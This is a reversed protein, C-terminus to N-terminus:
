GAFRDPDTFDVDVPPKDGVTLAALVEGIGTAHKFGHGSCGGGVLLRPHRRPRGLVFQRDPTRTFLCVEARVPVTDLGPFAAPLREAAGAWDRRHVSRDLREPDVVDFTKGGDELGLKVPDGARESGHGWLASGDDLERIFVPFEDIRFADARDPLPAFWTTPMRVADLPLGPVLASLWSGATVVAQRVRFERVPTRIVVDRTGPEVAVVRTDAYVRAGAGVAADVAARVTEEPRVLGAGVEWVGAHHEGIGAHAPFRRRLGAADLVDVELGRARAVALAAPVLHGDRPGALLGGSATFLARGSASELEGWLDRSLRALDVLGPHELCATRFMRSGGHSSGYAHGPTHREFGLVDVGRAALRWLAASGWAGLGIVAVDADMSSM